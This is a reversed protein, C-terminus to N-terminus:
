THLRVQQAATQPARLCRRHACWRGDGRDGVHQAWLTSAVPARGTLTGPRGSEAKQVADKCLGRIPKVSLM